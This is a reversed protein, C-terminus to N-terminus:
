FKIFKGTSIKGNVEFLLQYCGPTLSHVNITKESSTILKRGMMDVIFTRGPSDSGIQLIDSCPNPYFSFSPVSNSVSKVEATQNQFKNFFQWIVASASFDGNNGNGAGPWDLHTGSVIKYLECSTSKLEASWEYHIVTTGDSKDIDPLNTIGPLPICGDSVAWFNLLTDIDTSLASSTYPVTQDATGHIELVPVAQTPKCKAFELAAMSGSVSAIASIKNPLKWALQYCMYGGNSLGSAYIRKLDINYHTHLTDILMSIYAVDDPTTPLDPIGATWYQYGHSDVTGEPYVVLFGATDAIPMYNTYSKELLANSSYGHLHIILSRPSRSIYNKPIYIHYHRMVGESLISDTVTKQAMVIQLPICFFFLFLIFKKM